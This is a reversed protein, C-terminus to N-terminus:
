CLPAEWIDSKLISGKRVAFLDNAPHLMSYSVVALIINAFLWTAEPNRLM